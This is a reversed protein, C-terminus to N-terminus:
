ALAGRAAGTTKRVALDAATWTKMTAGTRVVLRRGGAGPVEGPRIMQICVKNTGHAPQKQFIEANAHGASDVPM